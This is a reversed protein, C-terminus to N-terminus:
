FSTFGTVLDRLLFMQVIQFTSTSIQMEDHLSTLLVPTAIRDCPVPGMCM